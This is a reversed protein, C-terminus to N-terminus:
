RREATKELIIRRLEGFNQLHFEIALRRAGSRDAVVLRQLVNEPSVDGIDQWALFVSPKGPSHQWLGDEAAVFTDRSGKLGLISVYLSVACFGLSLLQLVDDDWMGEVRMVVVSAAALVSVVAFWLSLTRVLPPQAFSREKSLRRLRRCPPHV